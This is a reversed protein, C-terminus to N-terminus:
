PRLYRGDAQNGMYAGWKIDKVSCQKLILRRVTLKNQPKEFSTDGPFDKVIAPSGCDIVDLAGDNDLDGLWPTSAFNAGSMDDGIAYQRNKFFDYVELHYFPKNEGKVLKDFITVLLADDHGDQDFDGTLPSSYSFGGSQWQQVVKGTKGDILWQESRKFFPYTGISYCVFVDLVKDNGSFYGVTPMSYVEAEPCVVEWHKQYTKGDILTTKGEVANVIFDLKGDGTLDALLTPAIFGKHVASDLAIAGSLNGKKIDQLTTLYLHGGITEGGTGIVVSPNPEAPNVVVPSFYTEKKDPMTAQSIIAGTKGDLLLLKGAPRNTQGASLTADGGNSVLLDALGDGNQDTILQPNFFNFWGAKRHAMPNKSQFFEWIKQGNKGDLAQLEASRGGIIVDPTEDQNIDLFLASGVIQNRAASYWLVSGDAGNLAVVASDSPYWELTGAGIIVDKIGDGNLDTTRPSSFSTISPLDVQWTSNQPTCALFFLLLCFTSFLLRM